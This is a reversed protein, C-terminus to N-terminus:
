LDRWQHALGGRSQNGNVACQWYHWSVSHFVEYGESLSSQLRWLVDLERHLGGSPKLPPLAPSLLAM